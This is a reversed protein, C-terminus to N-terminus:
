LLVQPLEYMYSVPARSTIDNQLSAHVRVLQSFTLRKYELVCHGVFVGSFWVFCLMCLYATHTLTHIHTHSHTHTHAHIHAHTHIHTHTHTYLDYMFMCM